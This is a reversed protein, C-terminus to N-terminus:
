KLIYTDFSEESQNTFLNKLEVAYEDCDDAEFVIAENQKFMETILNQAFLVFDSRDVGCVYAIENDEVFAFNKIRNNDMEYFVVKPLMKFFTEKTGTWPNIAKHTSIYRDLMIECCKEYIVHGKVAFSLTEGTTKGIYDQIFAEIEYCKRRCRFGATQIFSIVEEDKSSVMVQMPKDLRQSLLSFVEEAVETDYDQLQPKLYYHGNHYLNISYMISGIYKDDIYVMLNDDDFVVQVDRM